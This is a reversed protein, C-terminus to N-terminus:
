NIHIIFAENEYKLLDLDNSVPQVNRPQGRLKNDSITLMKCGINALSIGQKFQIKREGM